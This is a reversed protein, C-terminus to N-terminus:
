RCTWIEEPMHELASIANPLGIYFALHTVIELIEEKTMGQKLANHIHWNLQSYRGLTILTSITIMCRAKTDLTKRKWIDDFLVTKGLEYLKPSIQQLNSIDIVRFM